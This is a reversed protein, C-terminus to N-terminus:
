SKAAKGAPAAGFFSNRKRNGHLMDDISNNTAPTNSSAQTVTDQTTPAQNGVTAPPPANMADFQAMVERSYENRVLISMQWPSGRFDVANYNQDLIEITMQSINLNPCYHWDPYPNVYYISNAYPANVPISGILNKKNLNIDAARSNTTQIQFHPYLITPGGLNIVNNGILYSGNPVTNPLQNFGFGILTNQTNPLNECQSADIGMVNFFPSTEEDYLMYLGAYCFCDNALSGSTYNHTLVTNNPPYFDVLATDINDTVYASIPATFADNYQGSFGFGTYLWAQEGLTPDTYNWWQAGESSQVQSTINLQSSVVSNLYANLSTNDYHGDPIVIRQLYTTFDYEYTVANYIINLMKIINNKNSASVNYFSNYSVFQKLSLFHMADEGGSVPPSFTFTLPNNVGSTNVNNNNVSSIYITIPVTQISIPSSM